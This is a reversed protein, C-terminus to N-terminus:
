GSARWTGLVLHGTSLHPSFCSRVKDRLLDKDLIQDVSWSLVIDSLSQSRWRWLSDVPGDKGPTRAAQRREEEEEEEDEGAGTVACSTPDGPDEDGDSADRSRRM